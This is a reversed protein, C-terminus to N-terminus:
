VIRKTPLTLHTYSVPDNSEASKKKLETEITEINSANLNAGKTFDGSKDKRGEGLLQKVGTWGLRDIKDLARLATLKQENDDLNIKKFLEETIKRSSIKIVYEEKGLGCKELIESIMVCLEADAQLSQTGM